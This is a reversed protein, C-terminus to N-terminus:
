SVEELALVAARMPWTAVSQGDPYAVTFQSGAAWGGTDADTAYSLVGTLLAPSRWVSTSRDAAGYWTRVGLTELERLWGFGARAGSDPGHLAERWATKANALETADPTDQVLLARYAEATAVCRRTWPIMWGHLLDEVWSHGSVERRDTREWVLLATLDADAQAYAAKFRRVDLNFEHRALGLETRPRARQVTAAGVVTTFYWGPAVLPDWGAGADDITAIRNRAVTYITHDLGGAHLAAVSVGVGRILGHEPLDHAGDLYDIALYRTTM